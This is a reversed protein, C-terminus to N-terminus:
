LRVLLHRERPREEADADYAVQIGAAAVAQFGAEVDARDDYRTVAVLAGSHPDEYTIAEVGAQVNMIQAVRLFDARMQERTHAKPYHFLIGLYRPCTSSV